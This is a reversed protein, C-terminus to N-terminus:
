SAFLEAYRNLPVKGTLRPKTWAYRLSVSYPSFIFFISDLELEVNQTPNDMLSNLIVKVLIGHIICLSLKYTL